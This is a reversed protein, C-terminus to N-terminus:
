VARRAGQTRAEERFKSAPCVCGSSEQGPAGTEQDRFCAGPHKGPPASAPPRPAPRCCSGRPEPPVARTQRGPAQECTGAPGCAPAGCRCRRERGRPEAGAIGTQRKQSDGRRTRRTVTGQAAPEAPHDDKECISPGRLHARDVESCSAAFTFKSGVTCGAERDGDPSLHGHRRPGLVWQVNPTPRPPGTLGSPSAM